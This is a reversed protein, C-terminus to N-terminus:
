PLLYYKQTTMNPNLKETNNEPPNESVQRVNLIACNTFIALSQFSNLIKVFLEM